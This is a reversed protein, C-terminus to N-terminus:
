LVFQWFSSINGKRWCSFSSIGVYNLFVIRESMSKIPVFRLM